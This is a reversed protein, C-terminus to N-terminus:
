EGACRDDAVGPKRRWGPGVARGGVPVYRVTRQKGEREIAIEVPSSPDGWTVKSGVIADGERLGARDAPGGRRLGVVARLSGRLSADREFGLDFSVYPQRVPVFCPGLADPPLEVSGGTIVMREFVQTERPGVERELTELWADLTLAGGSARAREMLERIVHALTRKGGSRARVLAELRAGYLAGRAVVVALADTDDIEDGLQDNSVAANRSALATTTLGLLEEQMEAPSILGFRFLLDRAFHRNIGQSFWYARGEFRPDTPGVWLRGGIWDHLVAAAVAIRLPATWPESAAAHVVVGRARRRVRFEGRSRADTVVLLTADLTSPPGLRQAVATRFAAVDAAIPRPDFATYGMWAAEDRGESADFWARGLAGALYTGSALEKATARTSRDDGVGFSSAGKAGGHPRLTDLSFRIVAPVVDDVM